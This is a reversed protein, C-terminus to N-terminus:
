PGDEEGQRLLALLLEMKPLASAILEGIRTADLATVPSGANDSIVKLCHVAAAHALPLAAAVFGSAEMEVARDAQPYDEVVDDHTELGRASLAGFRQELSFVRGAPQHVASALLVEGVPRWRHGAVGVDLWHAAQGCRAHLEEVASAANKRGVGAVILRLDRGAYLRRQGSERPLEQLGFHAVLPRAECRLAVLLHILPM